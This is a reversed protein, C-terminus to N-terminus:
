TRARPRPANAWNEISKDDGCRGTYDAGFSRAADSRGDLVLLRIYERAVEPECVFNVALGLREIREVRQAAVGAIEARMSLRPDVHPAPSISLFWSIVGLVFGGALLASVLGHRTRINPQVVLEATRAAIANWDAGPVALKLEGLARRADDLARPDITPTDQAGPVVLSARVHPRMEAYGQTNAGRLALIRAARDLQKWIEPYDDHMTRVARWRDPDSMKVAATECQAVLTEGILLASVARDHEDLDAAADRYM